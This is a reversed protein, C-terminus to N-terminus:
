LAALIDVENFLYVGNDEDVAHGLQYDRVFVRDKEELEIVNREGSLMLSGPGVALVTGTKQKQKSEEALLISGVSEEPLDLQVLVYNNRPRM